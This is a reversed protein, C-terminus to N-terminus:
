ENTILTCNSLNIDTINIIKNYITFLGENSINNSNSINLSTINNNNNNNNNYINNLGINTILNCNSINIILLNNCYKSIYKLGKDSINKCNNLYFISLSKFTKCIYKLDNDYIDSNMNIHLTLNNINLKEKFNNFNDIENENLYLVKTDNFIINDSVYQLNYLYEKSPIYITNDIIEFFNYYLLICKILLPIDNNDNNNNNNYSYTISNIMLYINEKDDYLPFDYFLLYKSFLNINDKYKENFYPLFINYLNFNPLSKLFLRKVKFLKNEDGINNINKIINRKCNYVKISLINYCDEIHIYKISNPLFISKIENINIIEIRNLCPICLNLNLNNLKINYLTLSHLYYFLQLEKNININKNLICNYIRLTILSPSYKSLLKFGNTPIINCGDIKFSNYNGNEIINKFIKKKISINSIEDFYILKLINEKESDLLITNFSKVNGKILDNVIKKQKKLNINKKM